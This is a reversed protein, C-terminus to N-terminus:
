TLGQGTHVQKHTKDLLNDYKRNSKLLSEWSPQLAQLERRAPQLLSVDAGAELEAERSPTVALQLGEM